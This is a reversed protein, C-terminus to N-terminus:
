ARTFLEPNEAVYKSWLGYAEPLNKEMYNLCDSWGVLYGFKFARKSFYGILYAATAVGVMAVITNRNEEWFGKVAEIKHKM